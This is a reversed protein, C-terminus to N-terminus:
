GAACIDRVKAAAGALSEKISRGAQEAEVQLREASRTLVQVGEEARRAAQQAYQSERLSDVASRSLEAYVRVGERAAGTGLEVLERLLRQNAEAWVTLVDITKGALQGFLEQTKTADQM